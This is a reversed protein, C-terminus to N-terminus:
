IRAAGGPISSDDDVSTSKALPNDWVIKSRDLTFYYHSGTRPDFAKAWGVAFLEEDTPIAETSSSTEQIMLQDFDEEDIRSQQSQTRTKQSPKGSGSISSAISADTAYHTGLLTSGGFTSTDYLTSDVSYELSVGSDNRQVAEDVQKTTLARRAPASRKMVANALEMKEPNNLTEALHEKAKMTQDQAMAILAIQRAREKEM